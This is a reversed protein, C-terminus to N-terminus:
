GKKESQYFRKKPFYRPSPQIGSVTCFIGRGLCSRRGINAGHNRRKRDRWESIKYAMVGFAVSVNLSEKKGRMPISVIKDAKKLIARPAGRVENGIVLLLSFRPKFRRYDIAGKTKNELVVIQRGERKMKGIFRGPQKVKEWSVSKEAGLATKSIKPNPPVPTYGGLYLKTAGAGDATRFISGVNHASRINVALVYFEKKM